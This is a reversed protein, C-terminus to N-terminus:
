KKVHIFSFSVTKQLRNVTDGFISYQNPSYHIDFHKVLAIRYM